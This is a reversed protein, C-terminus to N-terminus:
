AAAEHPEAVTRAPVASRVARVTAWGLYVVALLAYINAVFQQPLTDSLERLREKPTFQMPGTVVIATAIGFAWWRWGGSATRAWVVLTGLCPIVWVWHHSWSVPSFLLGAVAVVCIATFEDTRYLRRAAWLAVVVALAGLGLALARPPHPDRFLRASVGLLSQNTVYAIGGTRDPDLAYDTWFAWAQRPQVLFGVAVTAITTLTANLAARRQGTALYYLIFIGPVLKIGTAIGVLVGRSKGLVLVDILVLAVLILNIQGFTLTEWVPHVVIGLVSLPVSWALRSHVSQGRPRDDGTVHRVTLHVIVFLGALSALMLLVKAMVLPLAAVPAFLMAGFVPYTFYLDATPEQVDYLGRGHLLASGGMRYVDLDLMRGWPSAFGATVLVAAVLGAAVWRRDTRTLAPLV